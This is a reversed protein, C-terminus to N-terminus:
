QGPVQCLHGDRGRRGGRNGYPIECRNKRTVPSEGGRIRCLFVNVYAQVAFEDIEKNILSM